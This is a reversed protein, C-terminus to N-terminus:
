SAMETRTQMINGANQQVVRSIVMAVCFLAAAFGLQILMDMFIPSLTETSFSSLSVIEGLASTYWFTPVFHAVALVSNGLLELPVFAGGLFSLALAVFNGVANQMNASKTFVSALFAISLCVIMLVFSNLICLAILRGDCGAVKGGYILFGFLVLFGWSILGLVGAGMALQFNVSRLRVPACLNRRRLDPRNFVMMVTSVGMILMVTLIYGMMRFYIEFGEDIPKEVNYTKKAVEAKQSLDEAVAAALEADDMDPISSRYLRATNLYQNVMMDTYYGTAGNPYAAQQLTMNGGAAFDKSFGQPIILIYDVADNFLADQMEEKQDELPIIEANESLYGKLGKVLGSEGDRNIVAVKTKTGSFDTSNESTSFSTLVISLTLFIVLYILLAAARRRIVKCCANFVRM